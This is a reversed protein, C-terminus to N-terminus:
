STTMEFNKKQNEEERSDFRNLRSKDREMLEM